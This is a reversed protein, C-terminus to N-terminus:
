GVAALVDAVVPLAQELEARTPGAYGLVVGAATAPGAFHRALGDLAVGRGAAAAVATAEAAADPLEAM